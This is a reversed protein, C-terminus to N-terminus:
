ALIYNEENGAIDQPLYGEVNWPFKGTKQYFAFVKKLDGEIDKIQNVMKTRRDKVNYKETPSKTHLTFYSEYGTEAFRRTANMIFENEYGELVSWGIKKRKFDYNGGCVYDTNRGLFDLVDQATYTIVDRYVICGTKTLQRITDRVAKARTQPHMNSCYTNIYDCISDETPKVLKSGHAIMRTITHVVDSETTSLSPAHNNEVLQFTRISDEYNFGDLCLEYIDFIWEIVGLIRLAELRHNGAVLEYKYIKGDVIRSVERVVPPMLSYDIGNYLSNQLKQVNLADKGKSRVSNDKKLPPIYIEDLSIIRRETFRVGPTKIVTFTVKKPDLTSTNSM